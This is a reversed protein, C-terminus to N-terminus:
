PVSSSSAKRAAEAREQLLRRQAEMEAKARENQGLSRYVSALQAHVSSDQPHRSAVLQFEQLADAYRGLARYARGLERHAEILSDDARLAERLHDAAPGPENMALLIQGLRLNALPHQPDLHLEAEMEAKAGEFDRERWQINGILFHLGALRPNKSLAARYAAVAEELKGRAELSRGLLQKAEASDPALEELRAAREGALERLLEGIEYKIEADHPAERLAADMERLAEPIRGERLMIQAQNLDAALLLSLVIDFYM